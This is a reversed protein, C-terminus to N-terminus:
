KFHENWTLEFDKVYGRVHPPRPYKDSVHKIVSELIKDTEIQRDQTFVHEEDLPQHNKVNQIHIRNRVKRLEDLKEYLDTSSADLLDNKQASAIYTQLKDIKKDRIDSLVRAAINKVGETTHNYIRFYLDHLLAEVISALIIIIPKCLLSAETKSKSKQFDYLIKLTKLNLNINDGTKFDGVFDSNVIFM